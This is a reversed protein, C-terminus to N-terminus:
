DECCNDLVNTDIFIKNYNQNQNKKRITITQIAIFFLKQADSFASEISLCTKIYKQNYM